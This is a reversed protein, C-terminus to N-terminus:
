LGDMDAMWYDLVVLDIKELGFVRIGERGTAAILVRYGARELLTRRLELLVPEDDICLITPNDVLSLPIREWAGAAGLM